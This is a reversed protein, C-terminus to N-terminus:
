QGAAFLTQIEQATLVRNYLLVEDMAGSFYQSGTAHINGLFVSGKANQPGTALTTSANVAVGDVYMAASEISNQATGPMTFVVHHWQGDKLTTWASASFYRYNSDGMHLIPGKGNNQLRVSSKLGGFSILTPTAIDDCKVWASVSWAGPFWAAFYGCSIYDSTGNFTIASGVTGATTLLASNQAAIGHLGMNGSDTIWPTDAADNMGWYAVMGQTPVVVQEEVEITVIESDNLGGSDQVRFTVNYSGATGTAPTWAFTRTAATFTAGSPLGTASYTLPDNDADTASITFSLTNSEIVSKAGITALVPAHNVPAAVVTITITESSS